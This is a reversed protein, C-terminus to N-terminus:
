WGGLYSKFLPLVILRSYAVQAVFVDYNGGNFTLDPGGIVPFTAQSSGTRGTVYTNGARDVAIGNGEDNGSGGIYGCYVLVTGPPNVKAVFADDYANYTLDPGGTVPFTAESSTTFGTIYAHGVGDVAIDLGGDVGSGGIYGCYVLGTGDAKVKAVFADIYGGNYTLDPGVAVPFTAESSVTRGTVYANGAEDVAIGTGDDGGNGGIYGCYVLGTGDAQVKAVFADAEGDNYTLDPGVTVPFTAQSSETGGTVYAHGAGDVAIGLGVDGGSGGIYGCYVLGTGPPNIKAVFADGYANYTLDPGGTVPFTAESSNTGGTIYAHGAGDVAINHGWDVGSGGIYGCYVLGTGDAKVKAVFIDGGDNYTLDPGVTVPFTDESSFTYGTVYANGAGDVAIGWSEDWGSGGIYGCYVLGTGDAKVKAVFTDDVGGNYTLDPGVTIPFTAESSSTYGTVYAHGVGDVAIDYGWDVDSGGIYGCYVLMAPDLVLPLTPDYAGLHFAYSQRNAIASQPNDLDPDLHTEALAYAVPVPVRRGDIEQWAVPTDDTFGGLPTTIELQGATNLMVGTAGCYALRIQAPDAGPHVIFEYKLRNVTGYYVLDIGPWLDPYVLRAYTPLGTHWQDPSGKFYSIVAETKDQGSPHVNPRAGIFDLKVAWRQLSREGLGEGVRPPSNSGRGQLSPPQPTLDTLVFTVGEATFYITKDRGQIYYAVRENVQGQNEVFYLPLQGLTQELSAQVAPNSSPLAAASRLASPTTTTTRGLAPGPQPAPALALLLALAVLVLRFQTNTKM